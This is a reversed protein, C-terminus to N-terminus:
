WCNQIAFVQSAGPWSEYYHSDDTDDTYAVSSELKEATFIRLESVTQGDSEM